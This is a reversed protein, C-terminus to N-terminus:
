LVIRYAVRRGEAIDLRTTAGRPRRPYCDFLAGVLAPHNPPNIWFGELRWTQFARGEPDIDALLRPWCGVLMAPGNWRVELPWYNYAAEYECPYEGRAIRDAEAQRAQDWWAMIRECSDEGPVDGPWIVPEYFGEQTTGALASVRGAFYHDTACRTLPESILSVTTVEPEPEPRNEARHLFTAMEARTTDSGPCFMTGDGFGHSIGSAALKAVSTAYWADAAVDSFGPDPAEALSYARSLFVAMESRIVSRDPCFGSGDGCGTTVGLEAMREIFPAFFSAADVDDFRSESVAQPDAGDLLRVVWVAMTQRDLADDPCFGSGNDCETGAFVGQAALAAVPQSYYADGSVDGFGGSQAVATSVALLSALVAVAVAVAVLSWRRRADHRTDTM